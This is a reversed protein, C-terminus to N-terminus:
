KEMHIVLVTVAMYESTNPGVLFQTPLVKSLFVNLILFSTM